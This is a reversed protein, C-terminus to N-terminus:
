QMCTDSVTFTVYGFNKIWYFIKKKIETNSQYVQPHGEGAIVKVKGEHGDVEHGLQNEGGDEDGGEPMQIVELVVYHQGDEGEVAM